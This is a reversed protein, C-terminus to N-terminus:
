ECHLMRVATDSTFGVSSDVEKTQPSDELWRDVSSDIRWFDQASDLPSSSGGLGYSITGYEATEVSFCWTDGHGPAFLMRDGHGVQVNQRSIV